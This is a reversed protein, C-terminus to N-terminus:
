IARFNDHIMDILSAINLKQPRTSYKSTFFKLRKNSNRNLYYEEDDHLDIIIAKDKDPHKRIFRGLQQVFKSENSGGGALIGFGLSPIDVGENLIKSAIGAKLKCDKLDQIFRDRDVRSSNGYVFPVTIGVKQFMEELLKGHEIMEVLILAPLKPNTELYATILSVILENRQKNKVICANVVDNRNPLNNPLDYTNTRPNYGPYNLTPSKITAYLYYPKILVKHKILYDEKITLTIPGILGELVKDDGKERWATASLGLRYDSNVLAECLPVYWNSGVRHVEDAIYVHFNEFLSPNEAALNSLTNIIGVTVRAWDKKGDGVIGVKEELVEELTKVTQKLLGRNPVTILINSTPFHKAFYAMVISKGSGTPSQVIGRKYELASHIMEIQHEYLWEPLILQVPNITEFERNYTVTCDNNRLLWDVRPLLGTYFSNGKLLCVEPNNYRRTFKNKYEVQSDTYTLQTRLKYRLQEPLNTIKAYAANYSISVNSM